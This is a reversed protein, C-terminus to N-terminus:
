TLYDSISAVKPSVLPTTSTRAALMRRPVLKELNKKTWDPVWSPLNRGPSVEAYCIIDLDASATIIAATTMICAKEASLRYNPHSMLDQGDKTIALLAYVNDSPITTLANTSRLLADLLSTYESKSKAEQTFARMADISAVNPMGTLEPFVRLVVSVLSRGGATPISLAAKVLDEWRAYQSGCRVHVKRAAVIEQIIWIRTWYPRRFLSLIATWHADYEHNESPRYLRMLAKEYKALGPGDNAKSLIQILEFALFSNDAEDGLWCLTESSHRYIDGMRLVQRGREDLDSQNICLADVWLCVSERRGLERLTSELSKTVHVEVGNLHISRTDDLDGWCYSLCKYSPSQSLSVHEITCCVVPTGESPPHELRCGEANSKGAVKQVTLLRIENPLEDLPQYDFAYLSASRQTATM